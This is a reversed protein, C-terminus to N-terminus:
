NQGASAGTQFARACAVYRGPVFARRLSARMDPALTDIKVKHYRFDHFSWRRDVLYRADLWADFDAATAFATFDVACAKPHLAALRKLFAPVHEPPNDPAGLPALTQVDPGYWVEPVNDVDADDLGTVPLQFSVIVDAPPAPGRLAALSAAPFSYDGPDTVLDHLDQPIAFDDAFLVSFLGCAVLAAVPWAKRPAAYRGALGAALLVVGYGLTRTNFPDFYTRLRLAFALALFALGAMLVLTAARRDEDGRRRACRALGCLLAAAIALKLGSWGFATLFQRILLLPAEPAAHRPMGTAYGTVAWNVGQYALYVAGAACFAPFVRWAVRRGYVLWTAVFLLFAFPSFFYRSFVGAILAGALLALRTRDAGEALRAILCIAACIAFLELNESWSYMAVGLTVPNVAILTAMALQGSARWILWVDAGLLAINVLKATIMMVEPRALPATLALLAPYGLPYVAMYQGHLQLPHGDRLSQALLMYYWSDVSVYGFAAALGATALLVAALVAIYRAAAASM